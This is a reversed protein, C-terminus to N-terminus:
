IKHKLTKKIEEKLMEIEQKLDHSEKENNTLRQLVDKLENQEVKMNAINGIVTKELKDTESEM